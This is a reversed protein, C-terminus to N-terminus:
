TALTCVFLHVYITLRLATSLENHLCTNLQEEVLYNIFWHVFFSFSFYVM